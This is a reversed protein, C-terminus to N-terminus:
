DIFNVATLFRQVMAATQARTAQGDTELTTNTMGDLLGVKVAKAVETHGWVIKNADSWASLLQTQEANDIAITSGAYEYARVVMAALEERTIRADPRFSGDEYGDVIGAQAAAGVVGAYWANSSVDNFTSSGSVPNLSLSRIVMAAFEARTVDRDPEFTTDTVGDVILKSALLDIYSQGWHSAVDSFTKELEIATYISNSSRYFEAEDDSVISPVFSLKNTTANFLTVTTPKSADETVPITRKIYRDFSDIALEEDNDGKLTLTFDVSASIRKGGLAAVAAQVADDATGTLEKIGIILDLDEVDTDFSEGLAEFDFADLPLYYAGNDNQVILVAGEKADLLGGVPISVSDGTFKVTVETYNNLASRLESESVSGGTANITSSSGGGGGGWGWGGGPGPNQPSARYVNSTVNDADYQIYVASYVSTVPLSTQFNYYVIGSVSKTADYTASVVKSSGDTGYVTLSVTNGHEGYVANSTYTDFYVSGKLSGDSGYTGNFYVAASALVPTLMALLLMVALLGSTKKLATKNPLSKRSREEYNKKKTNPLSPMKM